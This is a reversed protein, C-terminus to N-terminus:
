AAARPKLEASAEVETGGKGPGVEVPLVAAKAETLGRGM